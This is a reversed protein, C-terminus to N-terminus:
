YLSEKFKILEECNYDYYVLPILDYILVPLPLMVLLILTRYLINEKNSTNKKKFIKKTKFHSQLFYSKFLYTDLFYATPWAFAFVFFGFLWYFLYFGLYNKLGGYYIDKYYHETIVRCINFPSDYFFGEDFFEIVTLVVLASFFYFVLTKLENPM